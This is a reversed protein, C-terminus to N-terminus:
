QKEGIITQNSSDYGLVRKVESLIIDYTKRQIGDRKQEKVLEETHYNVDSRWSEIKDKKYDEFSFIKSIFPETDSETLKLQDLGFKAINKTVEDTTERVLKELDMRTKDHIQKIRNAEKISDENYKKTKKVYKRYSDVWFEEDHINGLNKMAENLKNEHYSSGSYVKDFSDIIDQESMNMSNDRLHYTLGFSRVLGKTVWEASSLGDDIMDTYGTPM